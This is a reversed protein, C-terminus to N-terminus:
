SIMSETTIAGTLGTAFLHTVVPATPMTCATDVLGLGASGVGFFNARPTGPTTHTVNTSSNYGCMLGISAAAPFAVTFAYGVKTLVINIGSGIPNSLCLGTYTTALAATTTTAAQNAANFLNRRYAQEYYRGHLESVIGDGLNGM